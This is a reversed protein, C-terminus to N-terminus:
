ATGRRRNEQDTRLWGDVLAQVREKQEPLLLPDAALAAVFHERELSTIRGDALMERLNLVLRYPLFHLGQDIEALRLMKRLEDVRAVLLAAQGEGIRGGTALARARAGHDSLKGECAEPIDRTEEFNRELLTMEQRFRRSRMQGRAVGFLAGALTIALGLVFFTVNQNQPEFAVSIFNPAPAGVHFTQVSSSEQGAANRALFRAVIDGSANFTHVIQPSTQWPTRTGDGWDVAYSTAPGDEGPSGRSLDVTLPAGVPPYPTSALPNVGISASTTGIAAVTGDAMFLVLLGDGLAAEVPNLISMGASINFQDRWEEAGTRKDYSYAAVYRGDTPNPAQEAGDNYAVALLSTSTVMLAERSWHETSSRPLSVPPWAETGQRAEFAYVTQPTTEYLMAGDYALAGEAGNSGGTSDDVGVSRQWLPAGSAPNVATLNALKVYIQQSDGTPEGPQKTGKVASGQQEYSFVPTGDNARLAWLIEPVAGTGVGLELVSVYVLSGLQMAGM